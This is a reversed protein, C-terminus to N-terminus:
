PDLGGGRGQQLALSSRGDPPPTSGGANRQGSPLTGGLALKTSCMAQSVGPLSATQQLAPKPTRAGLCARDSPLCVAAMRPHQQGWCEAPGPPCCRGPCLAAMRPSPVGPRGRARIGTRSCTVRATPLPKRRQNPLKSHPRKRSLSREGGVGDRSSPLVLLPWEPTAWAGSMGRDQLAGGAGRPIHSAMRPVPVGPMGRARFCSCTSTLRAASVTFYIL